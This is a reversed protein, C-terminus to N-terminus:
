GRHRRSMLDDLAKQQKDNLTAYFQDFAPRVQQVVDLGTTLFTEVMALKAMATRPPQGDKLEACAEGVKENGGRVAQALEEWAQQQPGTFSMFNEVFSIAHEVKEGRAMGCLHAMGRGGRRGGHHGGAFMASAMGVHTGQNETASGISLTTATVAAIAVLGVAGSILLAKTNM